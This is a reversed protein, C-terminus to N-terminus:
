VQYLSSEHVWNRVRERGTRARWRWLKSSTIAKAFVHADGKFPRTAPKRRLTDEHDAKATHSLRYQEISHAVVCLGVADM